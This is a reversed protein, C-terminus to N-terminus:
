PPISTTINLPHSHDNRAYYNTTGVSVSASDSIPITTTVNLPHIHDGRSYETSIGATATGDSQPTADSAPTVQDSVIDGSLIVVEIGGCSLALPDTTVVVSQTSIYQNVGFRYNLTLVKFLAGNVYFPLIYIFGVNPHPQTSPKLIALVTAFVPLADISNPHLLIDFLPAIQPYHTIYEGDILAAYAGQLKIIATAEQAESSIVLPNYILASPFVIVKLPLTLYEIFQDFRM